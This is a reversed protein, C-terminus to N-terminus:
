GSLWRRRSRLLMAAIVSSDASSGRGVVHIEKSEWVSSDTRNVAKAQLCSAEESPLSASYNSVRRLAVGRDAMNEHDIEVAICM